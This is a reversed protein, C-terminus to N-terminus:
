SKRLHPPYAVERRLASPPTANFRGWARRLQRSSSYGVREAVREMDLRTENLLQQALAVRLRNLYDPISM